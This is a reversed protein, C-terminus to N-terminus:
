PLVGWVKSCNFFGKWFPKCDWKYPYLEPGIFLKYTAVAFLKDTRGIFLTLIM